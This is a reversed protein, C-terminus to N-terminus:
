LIPTRSLCYLRSRERERQTRLLPAVAAQASPYSKRGWGRVTRPTCSTSRPTTPRRCSGSSASPRRGIRSSPRGSVPTTRRCRGCRRSRGTPRRTRARPLRERPTPAQRPQRPPAPAPPARPLLPRAGAHLRVRRRGPRPQPPGAAAAPRCRPLRAGHRAGPAGAPRAPPPLAAPAAPPSPPPGRGEERREPKGKKSRNQETRKDIESEKM